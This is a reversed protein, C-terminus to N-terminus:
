GCWLVASSKCSALGSHPAPLIQSCFLWLSAVTELSTHLLLSTHCLAWRRWPVKWLVVLLPSPPISSASSGNLSDLHEVKPSPSMSHLCFSDRGNSQCPRWCHKEATQPPPNRRKIRHIAMCGLGAIWTPCQLTSLHKQAIKSTM